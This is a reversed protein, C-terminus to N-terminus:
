RNRLKKPNRSGPQNMGKRAGIDLRSYEVMRRDYKRAIKKKPKM